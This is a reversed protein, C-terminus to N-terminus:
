FSSTLGIEIRHRDFTYLEISSVQRTYAYAIRPTFRGLVVHRNLVALSAGFMRDNRRKGFAPLAADYRALGFSPEIQVSFGAALDRYYGPAVIGNWNAHGPHRAEQRNVASRLTLASTPGLPRFLGLNLSWLMGNREAIRVHDLWQGALAGSVALRPSPYWTAEIRAGAGRVLPDGGYWRSFGTGLLSVDWKGSVIRPGAHFALSTDDFTTGSYERRAASLGLRLRANAAIRPAYEGAGEVALGIGSHHRADESLEFPLGYLTVERASAGANLNTDPALAISFAWSWDKAQRIAYLYQDINALVEAPHRGARALRFQRDANAYDKDLFFARALELRVRVADPHDILIARFIRIARANDGRNMAVMGALFRVQEDNPKRELIAEILAEAESGLGERLLQDIANGLPLVESQAPIEPAQHAQQASAFCPSAGCAATLALLRLWHRARAPSTLPDHGRAAM